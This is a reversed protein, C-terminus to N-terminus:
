RRFFSIILGLLAIIAPLIMFRIALKLVDSGSLTLSFNDASRPAINLLNNKEFMWNITNHVLKSNGLKGFLRNSIFDEDGFVALKGGSMALGLNTNDNHTAVMALPIPGRFDVNEDYPPIKNLRYAKTAWSNEGSFLLIEQKLGDDIDAGLDQRIMRSSGFQMPLEANYLYKVIPHPVATFGKVIIDGGSSENGPSSEIVMVDDSRIGWEFFIDELGHNSGLGMFVILRGNEKWLYNKLLTIERPLFTAQPAAIIIMAADQPMQKAEILNLEELRYNRSILFASLESLGRISDSSKISMEGHGSVFYIKSSEDSSVSLIASSIAQEGKFDIRKNANTDYLDSLELIKFKKGSAIILANDVENGFRLALEQAKKSELYPDVFRVKIQAKNGKSVYEYQRLISGLDKHLRESNIDGVGKHLTVFIEISEKLSDIYASTELSLSNKKNQSADYKIYHRAAIYNLALFLTIGLFVQITLNFLRVKRAYKFDDLASLKM